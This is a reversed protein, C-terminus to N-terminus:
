GVRRLPRHPRQGRGGSHLRCAPRAVARSPALAPPGRRRLHPERRLRARAPLLAAARPARARPATRAGRGPAAQRAPRRARRLARLAHASRPGTCRRTPMACSRRPSRGRAGRLRRRHEGGHLGRARRGRAARRPRWQTARRDGGGGAGRLHGSVPGHVRRGRFARPHREPARARDVERGRCPAPRRRHRARRHRARPQRQRAPVRRPRPVARRRAPSREAALLAQRLRDLMLKRNPLGTLHDCFAQRALELEGHKQSIAYRIGRGLLGADLSCKLLYDQAGRAPRSPSGRRARGAWSSSRSTPRRRSCGRWRSSGRLTPCRCISCCATWTAPWSTEARRGSPRADACVSRM